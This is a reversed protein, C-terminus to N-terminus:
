ISGAPSVNVSVCRSAKAWRPGEAAEYIINEGEDLNTDGQNFTGGLPLDCGGTINFQQNIGTQNFM